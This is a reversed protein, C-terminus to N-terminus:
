KDGISHPKKAIKKWIYKQDHSNLFIRKTINSDEIRSFSITISMNALNEWDIHKHQHPSINWRPQYSKPFNGLAELTLEKNVLSAM